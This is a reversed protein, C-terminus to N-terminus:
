CRKPVVPRGASSLATLARNDFKSDIDSLDRGRKNHRSPVGSCYEDDALPQHLGMARVQGARQQGQIAKVGSIRTPFM